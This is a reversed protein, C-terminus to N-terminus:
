LIYNDNEYQLFKSDAEDLITVTATDATGDIIVQSDGTVISLMGSFIENTEIFNDDIIIVNFDVVTEGAPLTVQTNDFDDYDIGGATYYLTNNNPHESM